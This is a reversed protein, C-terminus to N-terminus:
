VEEGLRDLEAKLHEVRIKMESSEEPSLNVRPMFRLVADYAKRANLRNRNRTDHRHADLAIKAFTLGTDIESRLFDIEALTPNVLNTVKKMVWGDEDSLKSV